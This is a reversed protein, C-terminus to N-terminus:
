KFITYFIAVAIVFIIAIIIITDNEKDQKISKKHREEQQSRHELLAREDYIELLEKFVYSIELSQNGGKLIYANPTDMGTYIVYAFTHVTPANVHYGAYYAAAEQLRAFFMNSRGPILLLFKDIEEPKDLSHRFKPLVARLFEDRETSSAFQTM